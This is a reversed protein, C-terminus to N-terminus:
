NRCIRFLLLQLTMILQDFEAAGIPDLGSTPEDLFVIDPNGVLACALALRQKQGGSLTGVRSETKSGLDVLALM